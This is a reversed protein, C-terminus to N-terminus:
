ASEACVGLVRVGVEAGIQLICVLIRVCRNAGSQAIQVCMGCWKACNSGCVACNTTNNLKCACWVGCVKRNACEAIRVCVRIECM